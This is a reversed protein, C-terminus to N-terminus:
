APHVSAVLLSMSGSKAAWDRVEALSRGARLGMRAAAGADGMDAPWTRDQTVTGPRRGADADTDGYQTPAADAEQDADQAPARNILDSDQTLM